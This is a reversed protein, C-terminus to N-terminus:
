VSRVTITGSLSSDVLFDALLLLTSTSSCLWTDDRTLEPLVDLFSASADAWAQLSLADDHLRPKAGIIADMVAHRLDIQQLDTLWAMTSSSLQLWPPIAEKLLRGQGIVHLLM